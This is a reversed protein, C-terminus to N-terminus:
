SNSYNFYKVFIKDDVIKIQEYKRVGSFSLKVYEKFWKEFDIENNNIIECVKPLNEKLLIIKNLQKMRGKDLLNKTREEYDFISIVYKGVEKFDFNSFCTVKDLFSLNISNIKNNRYHYILSHNTNLQRCLNWIGYNDIASTFLEKQFSPVLVVRLSNKM